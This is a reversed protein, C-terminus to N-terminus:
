IFNSYLCLEECENLLKSPFFNLPCWLAGLIVSTAYMYRLALKVCVDVTTALAGSRITGTFGM